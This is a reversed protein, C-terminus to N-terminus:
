RCLLGDSPWFYRHLFIFGRKKQQAAHHNVHRDSVEPSQAVNAPMTRREEDDMASCGFCVFLQFTPLSKSHASLSSFLLSVKQM